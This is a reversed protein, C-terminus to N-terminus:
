RHQWEPRRKEMFSNMGEQGDPTQSAAAMVETAYVYAQSQPLDMQHYLTEKGLAKSMRSGRTARNMLDMTADDLEADPVVANILGWDVATEPSIVDGTLSLEMARKRGMARSITVMPTHCFLGGKGGPAAFGASEASVALDTAAVLQCGAATALGHVRSIVVQPVKQILQMLNACIGLLERMFVLDAGAMDAFDHGASFVPGNAALIVGVADTAAVDNLAQTLELMHARSLANRQAPRNMTITVVENGWQNQQSDVLIHEFSM